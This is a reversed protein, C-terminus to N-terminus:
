VFFSIFPVCVTTSTQYTWQPTQQSLLNYWSLHCNYTAKAPNSTVGLAVGPAVLSAAADLAYGFPGSTVTWLTANLTSLALSVAAATLPVAQQHAYQSYLLVPGQSAPGPCIIKPYLYALPQGTPLSPMALLLSWNGTGSVMIVSKILVAFLSLITHM